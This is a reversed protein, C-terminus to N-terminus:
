KKAIDTFVEEHTPGLCFERANRDKLRFMEHM